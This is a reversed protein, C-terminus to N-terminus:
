AAARGERGQGDEQGTAASPVGSPRREPAALVFVCRPDGRLVSERQVVETGVLLALLGRAIACIERFDRALDALRCGGLSVEYGGNMRRLEAPPLADFLVGLAARIRVEPDPIQAVEPHEAALREAAAQITRRMQDPGQTRIGRLLSALLTAYTEPTPPEPVPPRQPTAAYVIPPRGPRGRIVQRSILGDRELLMLHQRLASPSLGTAAVLDKLTSPGSATLYRLMETRAPYARSIRSGPEREPSSGAAPKM